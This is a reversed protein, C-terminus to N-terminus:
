RLIQSMEARAVGKNYRQLVKTVGKYCGQLVRTVGKYCGQPVRTVGNYCRQSVRTVGNYCGQLVRVGKYCLSTPLEKVGKRGASCVGCVVLAFPYPM